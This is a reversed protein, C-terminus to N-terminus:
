QAPETRAHDKNQVYVRLLIGLNLATMKVVPMKEVVINIVEFSCTYLLLFTQM